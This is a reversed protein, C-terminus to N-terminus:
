SNSLYRIWPTSSDMLPPTKKKCDWLRPSSSSFVCLAFGRLVSYLVFDGGRGGRMRYIAGFSTLILYPYYLVLLSIKEQSTTGIVLFLFSIWLFLRKVERHIIGFGELCFSCFFHHILAWACHSSFANFLGASCHFFMAFVRMDENFWMRKITESGPHARGERQPKRPVPM